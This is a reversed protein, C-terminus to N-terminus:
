ASRTGPGTSAPSSPSEPRSRAWRTASRGSTPDAEISAIPPTPRCQLLSYRCPPFAGSPLLAFGTTLSNNRRGRRRMAVLVDGDHFCSDVEVQASLMESIDLRAGNPGPGRIIFHGDECTFDWKHLDEYSQKRGENESHLLVVYGDPKTVAIMELIAEVPDSMHDLSNEAYVIDFRRTTFQAQLTQADGYQTPIPSTMGFNSMLRCYDAALIDIAVISLKKSRHTKGLKTVPGSGVDLIEVVKRRIKDIYPLLHEQVPADPDFRMAFDDPWELGRSAVWQRWFGLEAQLQRNRSDPAVSRIFGAALGSASSTLARFQGLM